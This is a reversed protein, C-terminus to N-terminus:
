LKTSIICLHEAAPRKFMISNIAELLIKSIYNFLGLDSVQRLVFLEAIAFLNETKKVIKFDEKVLMKIEKECIRTSQTVFKNM